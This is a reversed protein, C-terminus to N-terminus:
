GWRAAGFVDRGSVLTRLRESVKRLLEDGVPHGLTDNVAKFRDLDILMVAARVGQAPALADSVREAFMRRNPLGTLPDHMAARLLEERSVRMAEGVGAALEPVPLGPSSQGDSRGAGHGYTYEMDRKDAARPFVQPGAQFVVSAQSEVRRVRGTTSSRAGVGDLGAM